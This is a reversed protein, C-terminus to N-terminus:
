SRPHGRRTGPSRWRAHRPLAGGGGVGFVVGERVELREHPAHIQRARMLQERTDRCGARRRIAIQLEPHAKAECWWRHSIARRGPYRAQDHLCLQCHVSVNHADHRPRVQRIRRRGSPSGPREPCWGGTLPRIAAPHAASSTPWPSRRPALSEHKHTAIRHPACQRRSDRPFSENRPRPFITHQPPKARMLPHMRKHAGHTLDHHSRKDADRLRNKASRTRARQGPRQAAHSSAEHATSRRADVSTGAPAPVGWRLRCRRWRLWPVLPHKERLTPAKRPTKHEGCGNGLLALWVWSSVSTHGVVRISALSTKRM